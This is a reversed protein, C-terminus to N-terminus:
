SKSSSRASHRSEPPRHAGDSSRRMTSTTPPSTPSPAAAATNSSSGASGAPRQLCAATAVTSHKCNPSRTLASSTSTRAYHRRKGSGTTSIWYGDQKSLSTRTEPFSGPDTNGPGIADAHLWRRITSTSVSPVIHRGTAESALEAYSWRSLPVGTEAPLQCALAKVEAVAASAFVPPRGSRPLDRLGDLGDLAFRSRWKRVTDVHVGETRAIQANSAGRAAALIIRARSSDRVESRARTARGSLEREEASSLTITFPSIIRM